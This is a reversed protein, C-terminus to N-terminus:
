ECIVGGTAGGGCGAGECGNSGTDGGGGLSLMNMSTDKWHGRGSVRAALVGTSHVCIHCRGGAGWGYMAAGKEGGGERKGGEVREGRRRSVQRASMSDFREATMGPRALVKQRQLERTASVVVM